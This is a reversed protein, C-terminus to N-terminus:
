RGSDLALFELLKPFRTLLEGYLELEELRGFTEVRRAAMDTLRDSVLEGQLAVFEGHLARAQEYMAFDPFRASTIRLSFGEIEPFRRAIRATLEPIEGERMLSDARWAFEPADEIWRIAFARIEEALEGERLALDEQSGLNLSGALGVLASPRLSFSMSAGLEWSFDERLGMFAAYTGASPLTGRALFERRVPAIRFVSTRANNPVLKYWAWGFEGPVVLNPDLGHTGSRIVGYSDPPV